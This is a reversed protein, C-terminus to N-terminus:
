SRPQIIPMRKRIQEINGDLRHDYIVTYAMVRRVYNRTEEFPISEVWQDAPIRKEPMWSKVRHPGANYSATALASHGQTRDLLRRLYAAGLRINKKVDLLERSSRLRTNTARATIRGTRPMIQMLGLAGAHSRADPMFGSEQRLVGYVWAPDIKQMDANEMVLDKFAMPFRLELDDFHDSRAVTQIARDYWGWRSALVSAMRLTQEDMGRIAYIWERRADAQRGIQLLEYARSIGPIKAINDLASEEFELRDSDLMYERGIRDAALFGHYSRNQSLETYIREAATRLVPLSMSQMELIRARWYQWNEEKREEPPLAEIWTLASWWDEQEIATRVRWDRVKHNGSDVAGLWELAKPHKQYASQLAIYTDVAVVDEASSALHSDRFRVWADAAAGADRRALRRIGYRVIERAIPKEEQYVVRHLSKAPNHRMDIWRNVWPREEDPLSKALFRVLSVRGNEMALRIRGWVMEATMGGRDKWAKFVPDCSSPKSDGTLWLKDASDMALDYQQTKFLALARSCEMREGGGDRFEELFTHWRGRMALHRLWVFRMKEGVPAGENAELFKRIEDDPLHSMNMRTYRYQLYPYLPYDELQSALRVYTRMHRKALVNKAEVYIERQKEISIESAFVPSLGLLLSLGTILLVNWQKCTMIKTM